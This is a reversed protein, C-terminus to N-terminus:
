GELLDYNMSVTYVGHEEGIYLPEPNLQDVNLIEYGNFFAGKLNDKLYKGIEKSIDTAIKPHEGRTLIKLQSRGVGGRKVTGGTINITSGTVSNSPFAYPYFTHLGSGNLFTNLEEVGM